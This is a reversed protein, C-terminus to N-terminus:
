LKGEERFANTIALKKLVLDSEEFERYCVRKNYNSSVRRQYTALRITEKEKLEDMIDLNKRLQNSNGGVQFAIVRPSKLDAEIPILAKMDYVLSFPTEGISVRSTTRYVWLVSPLKDGM